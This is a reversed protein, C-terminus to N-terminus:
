FEYSDIEKFSVIVKKHVRLEVYKIYEKEDLTIEVKRVYDIKGSLFGFYYTYFWFISIPVGYKLKEVTKLRAINSVIFGKNAYHETIVKRIKDNGIFLQYTKLFIFIIVIASIIHGFIQSDQPM